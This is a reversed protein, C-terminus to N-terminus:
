EDIEIETNIVIKWKPDTEFGKATGGTKLLRPRFEPIVKKVKKYIDDALKQNGTVNEIIYGLRQLVAAQTSLILEPTFRVPRIRECLENIVTAARNVGGIYNVYQLLDIATLEPNSVLIYGAETKQKELLAQNIALRGIYNIRIGRKETPRMAPLDHIVFFEQPHQHAAGYFSAASLLGVYYSKKAYKMLADIFMMPPIIGKVSYEPTIIIYLGKFVSLIKGRLVLGYLSQTIASDSIDPFHRCADEFTFSYRGNAQLNETWVLLYDRNRM